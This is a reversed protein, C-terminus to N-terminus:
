TATKIELPQSVFLELPLQQYENCTDSYAGQLGLISDSSSKILKPIESIKSKNVKLYLEYFRNGYVVKEEDTAARDIRANNVDNITKNKEMSDNFINASNEVMDKPPCLSELSQHESNPPYHNLREMAELVIENQYYDEYRLEEASKDAFKNYVPDSDSDEHFPVMCFHQYYLCKRHNHKNQEKHPTFKHESTGLDPAKTAIIQDRKVFIGHNPRCPFKEFGSDKGDGAGFLEKDLEVGIVEDQGSIPGIYKVTGM